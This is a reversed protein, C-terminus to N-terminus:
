AGRVNERNDKGNWVRVKAFKNPSQAKELTNIVANRGWRNNDIGTCLIQVIVTTWQRQGRRAKRVSAADFSGKAAFGRSRRSVPVHGRMRDLLLYVLVEQM